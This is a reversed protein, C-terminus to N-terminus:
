PVFKIRMSKSTIRNGDRDFATASFKVNMNNTALKLHRYTGGYPFLDGALLYPYFSETITRTKGRENSVWEMTHIRGQTNARIDFEEPINRLSIVANDPIPDYGPVPQGNSSDILTFNSIAIPLPDDKMISIEESTVEVLQDASITLLRELPGSTLTPNLEVVGETVLLETLSSKAIVRFHTGVVTIHAFETHIQLTEGERQKNAEVSVTGKELFLIKNGLSSINKLISGSTLHVQSGDNFIIDLKSDEGCQVQAQPEILDGMELVRPTGDARTGTVAGKLGVVQAVLPDGQSDAAAPIPADPQAVVVPDSDKMSFIFFIIGIMLAASAAVALVAARNSDPRAAPFMKRGTQRRLRLLSDIAHARGYERLAEPSADEPISEYPDPANM